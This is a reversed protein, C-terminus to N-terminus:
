LGFLDNQEAVPQVRRRIERNVGKSEKQQEELEKEHLLKVHQEAEKRTEDTVEEFAVEVDAEDFIDLQPKRAKYNTVILEEKKLKQNKAGALYTVGLRYLNYEKYLAVIEPRDDYTVYWDCKCAKLALKLFDHQETKFVYEYYKAGVEESTVYYPPDLFMLTGPKDYKAIVQEFSMNEIVVADLKERALKLRQILQLNFSTTNKESFDTQIQANFSSRILFLYMMARTVDDIGKFGNQYLKYFKKYEERSNLTWFIKEALADYNDRVQVFLNVLNGNFDNLVNEPAKPKNFFVAASGMFVEVYRKHEPFMSIIQRSLRQKGGYWNLITPLLAM